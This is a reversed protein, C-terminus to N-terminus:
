SYIKAALSDTAARSITLGLDISQSMLAVVTEAETQDPIIKRLCEELNSISERALIMEEQYHNEYDERTPFQKRVIKYVNEDRTAVAVGVQEALQTLELVIAQTEEVKKILPKLVALIELEFGEYPDGYGIIPTILEDRFKQEIEEPTLYAEKAAKSAVELLYAPNKLKNLSERRVDEIASEIDEDSMGFGQQSEAAALKRVFEEATKIAGTTFPTNIDPRSLLEFIERTKHLILAQTVEHRLLEFSHQRHDLNVQSTQSAFDDEPQAHALM